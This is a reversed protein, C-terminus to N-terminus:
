DRFLFKRTKKNKRTRNKDRVRPSDGDFLGGGKKVKKLVDKM